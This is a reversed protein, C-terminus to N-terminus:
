TTMADHRGESHLDLGLSSCYIELQDLKSEQDTIDNWGAQAEEILDDIQLDGGIYRKMPKGVVDRTTGTFLRNSIDLVKHQELLLWKTSLGSIGGSGGGELVPRTFLNGATVNFEVLQTLSWIRDLFQGSLQNHGLQITQLQQLNNMNWPITFTLQNRELDLMELDLLFTVGEPLNLDNHCLNILKLPPLALIEEPIQGQLGNDVM